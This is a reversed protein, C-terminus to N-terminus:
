SETPVVELAVKFEVEQGYSLELTNGDPDALLAWYGVPPGSDQPESRLFGAERAEAALCDVDDRSPLAVGLHGFPGLPTDRATQSQVLVIAFPRTGDSVWAVNGGGQDHRQHIVRMGAYRIYFAISRELSRVAFAIHTLGLDSM